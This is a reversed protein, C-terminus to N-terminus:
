AISALLNELEEKNFSTIRRTRLKEDLSFNGDDFTAPGGSGQWLLDDNKILNSSVEEAITM